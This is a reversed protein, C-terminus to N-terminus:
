PRRNGRFDIFCVGEGGIELGRGREKGKERDMGKREKGKRERVRRLGKWEGKGIGEGFRAQSDPSGGILEGAPRLRMKVCRRTAFRV